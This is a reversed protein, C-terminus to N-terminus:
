AGSPHSHGGPHPRSGTPHITRRHPKHRNGQLLPGPVARTRNGLRPSNVYEWSQYKGDIAIDFVRFEQTNLGYKLDQVKAGYIEGLVHFDADGLQNKMRELIRRYLEWQRVYLNNRNADNRKLGLGQESMGLSNVLPEGGAHGLCCWTGHIKETIIVDEGEQFMKPYKKINEIPFKLTHGLRHEVQGSMNTPIPPEWKTIGLIEAM